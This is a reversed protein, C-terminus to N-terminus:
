EHTSFFVPSHSFFSSKNDWKGCTKCVVLKGSIPFHCAPLNSLMISHSILSLGTVGVLWHQSFRFSHSLLQLQTM